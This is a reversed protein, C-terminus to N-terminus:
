PHFDIIHGIRLLPSREVILIWSLKKRLKIMRTPKTGTNPFLNRFYTLHTKTVKFLFGVRVFNKTIILSDESAIHIYM